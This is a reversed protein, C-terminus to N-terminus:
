PQLDTTKNPPYPLFLLLMRRGLFHSYGWAIDFGQLGDAASFSM